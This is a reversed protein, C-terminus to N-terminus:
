RGTEPASSLKQINIAAYRYAIAASTWVILCISWWISVLGLDLIRTCLWFLLAPAALQRWLGLWVAFMPRKMGQLASTCVFIIVYGFFVLSDIRLYTAGMAAVVEDKTFLNMFPRALAIVPVAAPLMIWAGYKLCTRMTERIRDIDGAGYNQAVISLAAVNLGISPLLAIQEVRTAVGYAAIAEQGFDSVFTNIIFMGMGITLFNVSAPLGQRAIDLFIRPRPILNRGKGTHLLGTRRVKFLLYSSGVCQILVTAWAVGAVGMAPIGLGGFIFWPDLVCNLIAGLVLFNRMTKTDGTAQLTANFMYILLFAPAASFIPVTYAMCTELYAGHAGMARFLMPAFWIGFVALLLSVVLGFSVTQVVYLCAQNQRKEGLASGILAMSGVQIGSGVAILIFFVPLSLSLAAQAETGILGAFWTDVVNFMTNFFLGVSAPIAISRILGPIPQTTLTNEQM